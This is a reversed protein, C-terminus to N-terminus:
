PLIHCSQMTIAPAIESKVGHAMEQVFERAKREMEDKFVKDKECELTKFMIYLIFFLLPVALFIGYLILIHLVTDNPMMIHPPSHQLVLCSRQKELSRDCDQLDEREAQSLARDRM